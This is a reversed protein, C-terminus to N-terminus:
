LRAERRTASSSARHCATPPTRAGVNASANRDSERASSVADIMRTFFAEGDILLDASGSTSERAVIRDLDSEWAQLDM